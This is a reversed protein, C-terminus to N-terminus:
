KREELVGLLVFRANSFEYSCTSLTVIRDSPMPEVDSAFMSKEKAEAIWDAFEEGSIFEKQWADAKTSAVYGAFFKLKFDGQPTLILCVPHEEFFAQEKYGSLAAFMSGNKMHHGYLISHQDSFDGANKCDMFISGASNRKKDIMRKMYYDNDEGKLIPYNVRTGEIYIWGVVDANVEQLAAFDVEPWVTDDTEPTETQEPLILEPMLTKEPEPTNEPLVIFQEAVDEYTADGKEYENLISFIQYGSFVAIAAFLAMVLWTIWKKM